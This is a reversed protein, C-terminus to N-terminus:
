RSIVNQAKDYILEAWKVAHQADTAVVSVEQYQAKQKLALLRRFTPALSKGDRGSRSLEDVAANHNDSKFSRGTVKLCIADKANIGSTIANSTAANFLDLDLNIQAAELFERAKALYQRAEELTGM